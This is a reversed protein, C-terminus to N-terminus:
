INSKYCRRGKGCGFCKYIQKSKSFSMSATNEKHFPCICKYARDLKLGFYEAVSIIDIRDKVEQLKNM